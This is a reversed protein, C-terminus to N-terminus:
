GGERAHWAELVEREREPSLGPQRGTGWGNLRSEPWEEEDERTWRLTDRATTALPRFTLGAAVARSVDVSGFGAMEGEAPVWNPMNHWASVGQAELFEADAWTFTADSGSVSKCTELLEGITRDGKRSTANFTGTTSEEIGLLIFEALDRVDIHQIPDGPSGPALVEGGRSVRVPWYTFRDTTDGPGVILGPRIASVRGPMQAEAAQECLAKLPGYTQGTVQEVTEDEITGVPDDETIGIKSFGAYVSISSIITYHRVHDALLSTSATVVRPYYASTDIVADWRRGELASLGEGVEPDRDGVLKELDPFLHPNTRGRNFLTMTHGREIATRVVHPGLFGTGGLILLDLKQRRRRTMAHLPSAFAMAATAASSTALFDRRSTAM